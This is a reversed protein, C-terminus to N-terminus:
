YFEYALIAPSEDQLWVVIVAAVSNIYAPVRILSGPVVRNLLCDRVPVVQNLLAHPGHTFGERCQVFVACDLECLLKNVKVRQKKVAFNARCKCPEGRRFESVYSRAAPHNGCIDNVFSSAIRSQLSQTM